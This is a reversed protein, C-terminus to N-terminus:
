GKIAEAEERPGRFGLLGDDAYRVYWLRRLHPDPPDRAPRPQAQHRLRTAAEREGALRQPRAANLLAMSPSAPRRRQGRNSTPLRVTEVFQALRDLSINSLIPSVVGGQPVGSLPAHFRWEEMYGAQRLQATL